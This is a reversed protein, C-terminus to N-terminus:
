SIERSIFDCLLTIEKIAGEACFPKLIPAIYLNQPTHFFFSVAIIDSLYVTLYICDTFLDNRYAVLELKKHKVKKEKGSPLDAFLQLLITPNQSLFRSLRQATKGLIEELKKFQARAKGSIPRYNHTPEAGFSWIKLDTKQRKM